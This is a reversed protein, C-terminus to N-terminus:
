DFGFTTRNKSTEVCKQYFSKEKNRVFRKLQNFYKERSCKKLNQLYGSTMPTYVLLIRHTCFYNVIYNNFKLWQQLPSQANEKCFLMKEGEHMNLNLLGISVLLSQLM